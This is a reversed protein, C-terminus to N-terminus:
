RFRTCLRRAVGADGRRGVSAGPSTLGESEDGLIEGKVTRRVNTHVSFHTEKRRSEVGDPGKVKAETEVLAPLVKSNPFISPEWGRGKIRHDDGDIKKATGKQELDGREFRETLKTSLRQGGVGDKEIPMNRVNDALSTGEGLGSRCM